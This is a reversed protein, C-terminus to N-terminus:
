TQNKPLALVCISEIGMIKLDMVKRVNFMNSILDLTDQKSRIYSGRDLSTFFRGIINGTKQKIPDCIIVYHKTLRNLTEFLKKNEGDTIHHTADILLAADYAASRPLNNADTCLFKKNPERYIKQAHNIYKPNLDVGLYEANTLASYQGTGCAIDVISMDSTVGLSRIIALRKKYLGFFSDIIKRSMHWIAPRELLDTIKM